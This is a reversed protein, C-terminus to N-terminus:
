SDTWNLTHVTWEGAEFEHFEVRVWAAAAEHIEDEPYEVREEVYVRPMEFIDMGRKRECFAKAVELHKWDGVEHADELSTAFHSIYRRTM